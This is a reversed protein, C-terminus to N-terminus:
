VKYSAFIVGNEEFGLKEYFKVNKEECFLTLSFCDQDWGVWKLLEIVCKGLGKGRATKCTVINEIKGVKGEAGHCVVLTGFAVVRNQKRDVAVVNLHQQASGEM